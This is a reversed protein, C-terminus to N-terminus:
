LSSWIEDYEDKNKGSSNRNENDARNTEALSTFQFQTFSGTHERISNLRVETEQEAVWIKLKDGTKFAHAPLLVSAPQKLPKIGPLM